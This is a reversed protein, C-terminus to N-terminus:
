QIELKMDRRGTLDGSFGYRHCFKAFKESVIDTTSYQQIPREYYDIRGFLARLTCLRSTELFQSLSTNNQIFIHPHHAQIPITRALIHAHPSSEVTRTNQTYMHM